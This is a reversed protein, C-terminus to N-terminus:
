ENQNKPEFLVFVEGDDVQIPENDPNTPDDIVGKIRLNNKKKTLNINFQNTQISPM